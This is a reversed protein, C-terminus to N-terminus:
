YVWKKQNFNQKNSCNKKKQLIKDLDKACYLRDLYGRADSKRKITIINLGDLKTKSLTFSKNEKIM